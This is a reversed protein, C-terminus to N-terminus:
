REIKSSKFFVTECFYTNMTWSIGVHRINDTEYNKYKMKPLIFVEDIDELFCSIVNTEPFEKVYGEKWSM